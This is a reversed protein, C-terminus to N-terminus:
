SFERTHGPICHFIAKLHRIKQETESLYILKPLLLLTVNRVKSYITLFSLGHISSQLRLATLQRLTVYSLIALTSM